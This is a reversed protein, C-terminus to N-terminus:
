KKTCVIQDRFKLNIISYKNWWGTTNLGQQYFTFLKKFKEDMSVTDGFIIKQDGAMPVLEMDGDNNVYIQQVQAKWFEDRDIYDAMAFIEDLMSKKRMLTDESIEKMTLTYRRSYPENLVGSAVLVNLTYKDSLPMLRGESDIYYSDCDSNIVRVLPRRQRVKITVQGDIDMFVNADAIAAHSNLIREMENVNVTHRPQGIISDGHDALLQRVDEDDIFYLDSDQDVHIDLATCAASEQEKNVFGLCLM